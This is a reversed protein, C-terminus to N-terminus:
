HSTLGVKQNHASIIASISNCVDPRDTIEYIIINGTKYISYNIIQSNIIKMEPSLAAELSACLSKIEAETSWTISYSKKVLAGNALLRSVHPGIQGSVYSADLGEPHLRSKGILSKSKWSLMKFQGWNSFYIMAGCILVIIIASVYIFIHKMNKQNVNNILTYPSSLV